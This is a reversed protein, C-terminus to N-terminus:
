IMRGIKVVHIFRIPGRTDYHKPKVETEKQWACGTHSACPMLTGKFPSLTSSTVTVAGGGFDGLVFALCM